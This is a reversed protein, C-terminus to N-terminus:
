AYVLVGRRRTFTMDKPKMATLAGVRDALTDGWCHPRAVATTRRGNQCGAPMNEPTSAARLAAVTGARHFDFGAHRRKSRAGNLEIAVTASSLLEARATGRDV